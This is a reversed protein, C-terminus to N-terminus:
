TRALFVELVYIQLYINNVQSVNQIREELRRRDIKMQELRSKDEGM